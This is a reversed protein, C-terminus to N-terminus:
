GYSSGLNQGSFELLCLKESSQLRRSIEGQLCVRACVLYLLSRVRLYVSIIILKNLPMYYNM